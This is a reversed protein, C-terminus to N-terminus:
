HPFLIIFSVSFVQNQEFHIYLFFYFTELGLVCEKGLLAASFLEPKFNQILITINLSLIHQTRITKLNASFVFQSLNVM